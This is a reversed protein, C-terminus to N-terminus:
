DFIFQVLMHNKINYSERIQVKMGEYVTKTNLVISAWKHVAWHDDRIKLADAILSYAEFILKKGDVENATKSMQYM